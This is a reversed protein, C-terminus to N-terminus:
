FHSRFTTSSLDGGGEEEVTSLHERERVTSGEGLQAQERAGSVSEGAM